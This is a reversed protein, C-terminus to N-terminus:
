TRIHFVGPLHLSKAEVQPTPDRPPEPDQNPDYDTGSTVSQVGVSEMRSKGQATELPLTTDLPVDEVQVGTSITTTSSM